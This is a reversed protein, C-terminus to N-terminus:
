TRRGAGSGRGAGGGPPSGRRAASHLRSKRRGRVIRCTSLAVSLRCRPRRCTWTPWTAAPVDGVPRGLGLGLARDLSSIATLRPLPGRQRPERLALKGTARGSGSRAAGKSPPITRTRPFISRSVRGAWPSSLHRCRPSLGPGEAATLSLGGKEFWRKALGTTPYRGIPLGRENAVRHAYACSPAPTCTHLKCCRQRPVAKSALRSNCAEAEEPCAVASAAQCLVPRHHKPRNKM